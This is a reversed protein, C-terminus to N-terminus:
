LWRRSRKHLFCHAEGQFPFTSPAANLACRYMKVGGNLIHGYVGVIRPPLIDGERRGRGTKAGSLLRVRLTEDLIADAQSCEHFYRIDFPTTLRCHRLRSLRSAGQDQNFLSLFTGFRVRPTATALASGVFNDVRSDAV